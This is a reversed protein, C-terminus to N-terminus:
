VATMPFDAPKFTDNLKELRRNLSYPTCASLAQLVSFNVWAM